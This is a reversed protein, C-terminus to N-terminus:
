MSRCNELCSKKENKQLTWTHQRHSFASPIKPDKLSDSPFALTICVLFFLDDYEECIRQIILVDDNSSAEERKPLLLLTFSSNFSTLFTRPVQVSLLLSEFKRASLLIKWRKPPRLKASEICTNSINAKEVIFTLTKSPWPNEHSVYPISQYTINSVHIKLKEFKLYPIFNQDEKRVRNSPRMQAVYFLCYFEAARWFHM